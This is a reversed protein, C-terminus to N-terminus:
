ETSTPLDVEMDEPFFFRSGDVDDRLAKAMEEGTPGEPDWWLAMPTWAGTETPVMCMVAVSSDEIKTGYRFGNRSVFVGDEERTYAYLLDHRRLREPRVFMFAMKSPKPGGEIVFNIGDDSHAIVLDRMEDVSDVAKTEGNKIEYEYKM